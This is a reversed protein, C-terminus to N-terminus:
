LTDDDWWEDAEKDTVTKKERLYVSGDPINEGLRFWQLVKMEEGVEVAASRSKELHM